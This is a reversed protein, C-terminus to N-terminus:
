MKIDQHWRLWVKSTQCFLRAEGVVIGVLRCAGTLSVSPGFSPDFFDDIPRWFSTGPVGIQQNNPRNRHSPNTEACVKFTQSRHSSTSFIHGIMTDSVM